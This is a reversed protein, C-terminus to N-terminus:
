DIIRPHGLLPGDAAYPENKKRCDWSSDFNLFNDSNQGKKKLKSFIQDVYKELSKLFIAWLTFTKTIKQVIQGNKLIIKLWFKSVKPGCHSSEFKFQVTLLKTSQM